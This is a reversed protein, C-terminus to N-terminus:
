EQTPRFLRLYFGTELEILRIVDEGFVLEHTRTEYNMVGKRTLFDLKYLDEGPLYSFVVKDCNAGEGMTWSLSYNANDYTINSAGMMRFGERAILSAMAKIEEGMETSVPNAVNM